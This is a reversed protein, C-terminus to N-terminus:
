LFIVAPGLVKVSDAKLLVKVPHEVSQQQAPLCRCDYAARFLSM